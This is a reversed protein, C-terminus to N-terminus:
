SLMLQLDFIFTHPVPQGLTQKIIAWGPGTHALLVWRLSSHYTRLSHSGLWLSAFLARSRGLVSGPGKQSTTESVQHVHLSGGFKLMDILPPLSLLLSQQLLPSHVLLIM